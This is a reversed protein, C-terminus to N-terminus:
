LKNGVWIFQPQGTTASGKNGTAHFNGKSRDVSLYDVTFTYLELGNPAFAKMSFAKVQCTKGIVMKGEIGATGISTQCSSGSKGFVGASNVKLKCFNTFSAEANNPVDYTVTSVGSVMWTGTLDAQSCTAHSGVSTSLLAGGLLLRCFSSQMTVNNRM